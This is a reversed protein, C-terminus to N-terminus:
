PHPSNFKAGTPHLIIACNIGHLNRHRIHLCGGTVRAAFFVLSEHDERRQANEKHHVLMQPAGDGEQGLDKGVVGEKHGHEDKDGAVEELWLM